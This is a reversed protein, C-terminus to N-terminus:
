NENLPSNNPKWSNTPKRNYEHNNFDLELIYRDSLIYPTIKIKRYKILSTNHNLIHDIKSFRWVEGFQGKGINEQLEITRAIKRRVLLPSVKMGTVADRHSRCRRRKM